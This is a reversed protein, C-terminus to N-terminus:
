WPALVTSSSVWKATASNVAKIEEKSGMPKLFFNLKVRRYNDLESSEEM